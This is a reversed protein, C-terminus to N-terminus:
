TINSGSPQPSNHPPLHIPSLDMVTDDNDEQFHPTPSSPASSTQHFVADHNDSEPSEVRIKKALYKTPIFEGDESHARKMRPMTTTASFPSLYLFLHDTECYNM